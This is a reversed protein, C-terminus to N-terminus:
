EGPKHGLARRIQNKVAAPTTDTQRALERYAASKNVPEGRADQADMIGIFKQLLIVADFQADAAAARSAHGGRTNGLGFAAAAATASGASDAAAAAADLYSLVWGPAPWGIARCLRFARLAHLGNGYREYATRLNAVLPRALEQVLDRGVPDLGAWQDATLDWLPATTRQKPKLRPKGRLWFDAPHSM